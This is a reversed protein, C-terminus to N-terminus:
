DFAGDGVGLALKVGVVGRLDVRGVIVQHLSRVLDGLHHVLLGSGYLRAPLRAATVISRARCRAAAVGAAVINNVGVKNIYVVLFLECDTALLGYDTALPKSDM